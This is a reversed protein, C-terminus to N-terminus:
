KLVVKTPFYFLGESEKTVEWLIKKDEELYTLRIEFDTLSYASTIRGAFINQDIKKLFISYSEYTCDMRDGNFAVGCHEGIYDFDRFESTPKELNISFSQDEKEFWRWSGSIDQSYCSASLFVFVPM